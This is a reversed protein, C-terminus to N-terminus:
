ASPRALIEPLLLPRGMLHHDLWALVAEYWMRANGPATVVHGEDPLYLLASPVGNRRLAAYLALPESVPNRYDREGCTVLTPTTVRDAHRAPSWARHFGDDLTDAQPIGWIEDFADAHDTAGHFAAM